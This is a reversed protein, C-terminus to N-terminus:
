GSDRGYEYLQLDFKGPYTVRRRLQIYRLNRPPRPLLYFPPSEPGVVFIRQGERIRAWVGPDVNARFTAGIRRAGVARVFDHPKKYHILLVRAQPGDSPGPLEIVLDGKSAHGDVYHAAARYDYSQADERTTKWGGVAVAAVLLSGLAITIRRDLHTVLGAICLIAAPASASLYRPYFINYGSILSFILVGAPAAVSLALLLSFRFRPRKRLDRLRPAGALKVVLAVALVVGIAIEWGHGPIEALTFEPRGPFVHILTGWIHEIDLDVVFYPNVLQGKSRLNPLWPGFLLAVGANAFAIQRLQDRHVWAAWLAQAGLAFFATYHTFLMAASAVTYAAWWGRDTRRELALLLCYTAAASLFMLTAYPRAETSYSVMFPAFCVLAAAILAPVTGLTRRGLLYIM